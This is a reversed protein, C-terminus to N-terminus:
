KAPLGADRGRSPGSGVLFKARRHITDLRQQDLATGLSRLLSTCMENGSETEGPGIPMDLIELTADIANRHPWRTAVLTEAIIRQEAGIAEVDCEALHAGVFFM